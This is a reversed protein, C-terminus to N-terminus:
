QALSDPVSGIVSADDYGGLAQLRRLAAGAESRNFFPGLVIQQVNQRRLQITRQMAPLGAQALADVIQDARERNSFLGVAVLYDASAGVSADTLPADVLAADMPPAERLMPGPVALVPAAPLVPPSPPPTLSELVRSAGFMAANLTLWAGLAIAVRKAWVRFLRQLYTESRLDAARGTRVTGTPVERRAATRSEARRQTAPPTPAEDARRRRPAAARPPPPALDQAVWQEVEKAFDKEDGIASATQVAPAAAAAPKLAPAAAPLSRAPEAFMISDWTPSLTAAGVEILATDLIEQDVGQAKREYALQLARDCVRNVLRPVGGCRRHLIDIIVPSFLSREHGGGAVQLRHQIYGGVGERSMPELRHYGCIRQDVQRMEPMKLKAHLEPQGVFLIQLRGQAGFTDSLIRTEEILPLSLNQAEDIVV